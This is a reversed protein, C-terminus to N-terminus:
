RILVVKRTTVFRKTELRIYYVGSAVHDGNDNKGDWKRVLDVRRPALGKHLTRIKQSISNYVILTATPDDEKINFTVALEASSSTFLNHDLKISGPEGTDETTITATCETYDFYDEPSISPVFPFTAPPWTSNGWPTIDIEGMASGGLTFTASGTASYTWTFSTKQGSLIPGGSPTDPGTLYWAQGAPIVDLYQYPFVVISSNACAGTNTVTLVVTLIWRSALKTSEETPTISLSSVMCTSLPPSTSGSFSKFVFIGWAAVKASVTGFISAPLSGTFTYTWQFTTGYYTTGSVGSILPGCYMTTCPGTLSTPGGYKTSSGGGFYLNEGVLIDSLPFNGTNTVTMEVVVFYQNRGLKYTRTAVSTNLPSQPPAIVTSFNKTVEAATSTLVGKVTGFVITAPNGTFSYTWEFTTGQTPALTGYYGTAGPPGSLAVPGTWLSTTIGGTFGLDRTVTFDVMNGIGTNTVTVDVVLYYQNPGMQITKTVISTALATAAAGAAVTDSDTTCAPLGTVSNTGGAQATFTAPLATATYTWTFASGTGPLLSFPISPTPGSMMSAGPSGTQTSSATISDINVADNNFVRLIANFSYENPQTQVATVTLTSSLSAPVTTNISARAKSWVLEDPGGWPVALTAADIFGTVTTPLASVTYTWYFATNAGPVLPGAFIAAPTPGAIKGYFPDSMKLDGATINTLNGIGTNTVTLTCSLVYTGDCKRSAVMSMASSLALYETTSASKYLTGSSGSWILDWGSISATFRIFEDGYGTLSYTWTFFAPGGPPLAPLVSPASVLNAGTLGAPTLFIILSNPNLDKVASEGTNTVSLILTVQMGTRTTTFSADLVAAAVPPGAWHLITDDGVAWADNYNDIFVGNLQKWPKALPKQFYHVRNVSMPDQPAPLRTPDPNQFHAFYADPRPATYLGPGWGVGIGFGWLPLYDIRRLTGLLPDATVLGTDIPSYSGVLNMYFMNNVVGPVAWSKCDEADGAGVLFNGILASTWEGPKPWGCSDVLGTSHKRWSHSLTDYLYPWYREFGPKRTFGFIIGQNYGSMVGTYIDALSCNFASANDEVGYPQCDGAGGPVSHYFDVGCGAGDNSLKRWQTGSWYLVTPEGTYVNEPPNCETGGVIFLTTSNGYPDAPFIDFLTACTRVPGGGGVGCSGPIQGPATGVWNGSGNLYLITGLAGCAWGTGDPNIYVDYLNNTTPSFVPAWNTGNFKFIVGGDGVAWLENPFANNLNPRSKGHVANLKFSGPCGVCAVKAAEPGFDTSDLWDSGSPGYAGAPSALLLLSLAPVLFKGMVFFPYRAHKLADVLTSDTPHGM